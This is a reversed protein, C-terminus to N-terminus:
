DILRILDPEVEIVFWYGIGGLRANDVEKEHDGFARFKDGIIEDFQLDFSLHLMAGLTGCIQVAVKSAM